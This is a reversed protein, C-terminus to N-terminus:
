SPGMYGKGLVYTRVYKRVYTRVYMRVGTRFNEALNLQADADGAEADAAYWPLTDFTHAYTRVCTRVYTRVYTRVCARVWARVCAHVCARVCARVCGHVCARLCAPLCAHMCAPLYSPLFSPLFSPLCAAVRISPACHASHLHNRSTTLVDPPSPSLVSQSYSFTSCALSAHLQHQRSSAQM